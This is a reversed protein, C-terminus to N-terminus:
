WKGQLEDRSSRQVAVDALFRLPRGILARTFRSRPSVRASTPFDPRHAKLLQSDDDGGKRERGLMSDM